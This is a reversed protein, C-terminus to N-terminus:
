RPDLLRLRFAAADWVFVFEGRAAGPAADDIRAAAGRTIALDKRGYTQEVAYEFYTVFVYAVGHRDPVNVFRLRAGTPPHPLQAVTQTLVSRAIEGATKWDKAARVLQLSWGAALVVGAIALAGRASRSRTTRLTGAVGIGILMPVMASSLYAFREAYGSLAIFPMFTLLGFAVAFSGAPQLCPRRAAMRIGVGTLAVSTALTAIWAYRGMPLALAHVILSRLNGYV